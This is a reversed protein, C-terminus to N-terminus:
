RPWAELLTRVEAARDEADRTRDEAARLAQDLLDGLTDARHRCSALSDPDAGGAAYAAIQDRLRDREARLGAATRAHARRQEELAHAAEDTRQQYQAELERAKHQRAADQEAHQQRVQALEAKASEIRAGRDSIELAMGGILLAIAAAVIVRPWSLRPM